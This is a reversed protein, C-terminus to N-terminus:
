KLGCLKLIMDENDEWVPIETTSNGDLKAAKELANRIMTTDASAYISTTTSNEHGLFDKIYSLPIGSQYLHMARSHRFLHAHVRKPVESCSIRAREAYKKIFASVNDPSMAGRKGKFVTYFLYDDASELYTPHFVKLYEKLHLVTKEMLPVARVKNGKGTLYICPIDLDLSIDRLKLDLIEQIRGGTDYMVIMFFRNRLDFKNKVNPQTLISKLANQSMYSVGKKTDRLATIDQVDMYIAALSPEEIACYHLFSKLAALRQNRTSISCNRSSQLWELFKYVLDHNIMEFTIDTFPIKKREWLFLRLLNITDRYAKITNTSYCKNRPLYVTLFSRVYKFFAGEISKNM